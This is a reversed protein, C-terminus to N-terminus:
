CHVELGVRGWTAMFPLKALLQYIKIVILGNFHLESKIQGLLGLRAANIPEDIGEDLM